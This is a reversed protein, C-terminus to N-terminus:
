FFHLLAWRWPFCMRTPAEDECPGWRPRWWFGWRPRWWFGWRPWGGGQGSRRRSRRRPGSDHRPGHRESWDAAASEAWCILWVMAAEVRCALWAAASPNRSPTSSLYDLVPESPSSITQDPWNVWTQGLPIITLVPFVRGSPKISGITTDHIAFYKYRTNHLSPFFQLTM